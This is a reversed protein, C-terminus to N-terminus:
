KMTQKELILYQDYVYLIFHLLSYSIFNILKAELLRDM